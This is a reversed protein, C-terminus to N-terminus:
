PLTSDMFDNGISKDKWSIIIGTLKKLQCQGMPLELRDVQLVM